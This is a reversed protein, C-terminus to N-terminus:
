RPAAVGRTSAPRGCAGACGSWGRRCAGRGPLMRCAARCAPGIPLWRRTCWRSRRANPFASGSNSTRASVRARSSAFSAFPFTSISSSRGWEPHPRQADELPRASRTASEGSRILRTRLVNDSSRQPARRGKDPLLQGLALRQHSFQPGYRFFRLCSLRYRCAGKGYGRELTETRGLRPVVSTATDKKAVCQTSM